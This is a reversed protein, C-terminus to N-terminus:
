PLEKHQELDTQNSNGLLTSGKLAGAAVAALSCAALLLLSTGLLDQM